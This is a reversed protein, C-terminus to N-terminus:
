RAPAPHGASQTRNGKRQALSLAERHGIDAEVVKVRQFMLFCPVVAALALAGAVLYLLSIQVFYGALAAAAALAACILTASILTNMSKLSRLGSTVEANM